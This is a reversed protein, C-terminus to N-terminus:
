STIKSGTPVLGEREWQAGESPQHFATVTLRVSLRGWAWCHFRGPLASFVITVLAAAWKDRDTWINGISKSAAPHCRYNMLLLATPARTHKGARALISSTCPTKCRKLLSAGFSTGFCTICHKSHTIAEPLRFRKLPVGGGPGRAFHVHVTARDMVAQM